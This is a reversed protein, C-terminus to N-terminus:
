RARRASGARTKSGFRSGDAKRRTASPLPSGNPLNKQVRSAGRARGRPTATSGLGPQLRAGPGAQGDGAGPLARRFPARGLCLSRGSALTGRRRAGARSREGSLAGARAAAGPGAATAPGAGQPRGSRVARRHQLPAGTSRAAISRLTQRDMGTSRAAEARSAGDLILAIALLRRAQEPTVAAKAPARVEAVGHDTRVAVTM